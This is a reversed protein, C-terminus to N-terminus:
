KTLTNLVARTMIESGMLLADKRFHMHPHHLGPALDAGIGVMTAKLHPRHITYFHFDDAGPTVIPQALYDEGLSQAIAERMINTAEPSVEAAPVYDIWQYEITVGYLGELQLFLTEIKRQLQRIVENSQSRIDLGFIANGPIINLSETGAQFRTMKVTAPIMPNTHLQGLHQVIAAGIEIANMGLHPRAGHCDEGRIEGELFVTAGHHIAPAAYPYTLEQQPRLHVGFLYEADDVVGKAVMLEAGNGIEEAPQFIARITGTPRSKLKNLTLLAGLVITMNADHGCSHNAVIQGDVEQMLADMDARLAVVPSGEGIEAVVGTVDAFTRYRINYKDLISAIYQTTGYEKLSPEPHTHLYQFIDNLESELEQIMQKM